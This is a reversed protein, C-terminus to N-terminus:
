EQESRCRDMVRVSIQDPTMGGFDVYVEHVIFRHDESLAAEASNPSQGKDRFETATVAYLNAIAECESDSFKRVGSRAEIPSKPAETTGHQIFEFLAFCIVLASVSIFAVHRPKAANVADRRQAAHNTQVAGRSSGAPGSPVGCFACFNEGEVREKGCSTCFM